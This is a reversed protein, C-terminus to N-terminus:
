DSNQHIQFVDPFQVFIKAGSSSVAKHSFSLLCICLNYLIIYFTLYNYISYFFICYSLTSENHMAMKLLTILLTLQNLFHSKVLVHFHHSNVICIDKGDGEGCSFVSKKIQIGLALTTVLVYVILGERVTMLLFTTWREQTQGYNSFNLWNPHNFM